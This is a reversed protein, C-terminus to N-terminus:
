YEYTQEFDERTMQRIEPVMEVTLVVSKYKLLKDGWGARTLKKFVEKKSIVDEM